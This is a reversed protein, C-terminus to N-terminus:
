QAKEMQCYNHQLSTWSKKTITDMGPTSAVKKTTYQPTMQLKGVKVTRSKMFVKRQKLIVVHAIEKVFHKEMLLNNKSCIDFSNFFSSPM